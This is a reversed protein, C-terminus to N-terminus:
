EIKKTVSLIVMTKGESPSIFASVTRNDKEASISYSDQASSSYTINWGKDKLKSEYDSKVDTASKSTEISVAFSEYQKDSSATKITGDIVYVDSPFDSPLDVKDGYAYSGSNTNIKVTNGSVDVDAQGNTLKELAKEATKEATKKGCGSLTVALVLCFALILFKKM